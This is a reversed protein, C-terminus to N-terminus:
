KKIGKKLFKLAIFYLIPSIIASLVDFVVFACLMGSSFISYPIQINELVIINLFTSVFYGVLFLVLFLVYFLVFCLCSVTFKMKSAVRDGIFYSTIILLSLFSYFFFISIYFINMAAPSSAYMDRMYAAWKFEKPFFGYMSCGINFFVETLITMVCSCLLISLFVKHSDNTKRPFSRKLTNITKVTAGIPMFLFLPFAVYLTIFEAASSLGFARLILSLVVTTIPTMVMIGMHPLNYKFVQLLTPVKPKKTISHKKAKTPM